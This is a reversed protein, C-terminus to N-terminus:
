FEGTFQGLDAGRLQAERRVLGASEQGGGPDLQGARDHGGQV